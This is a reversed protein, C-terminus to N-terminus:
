FDTRRKSLVKVKKPTKEPKRTSLTPQPPSTETYLTTPEFSLPQSPSVLPVPLGQISNRKRLKRSQSILVDQVRPSQGNTYSGLATPVMQPSPLQLQPQWSHSDSHRPAQSHPQHRPAAPQSSQLPTPMVLRKPLYNPPPPNRSNGSHASRSSSTVSQHPNKADQDQPQSQQPVGHRQIQDQVSGTRQPLEFAPPASSSAPFGRNDVFLPLQDLEIQPTYPAQGSVHSRRRHVAINEGPHGALEQGGHYPRPSRRHAEDPRGNQMQLAQMRPPLRPNNSNHRGRHDPPPPNPNLPPGIHQQYEIVSHRRPRRADDQTGQSDYGLHKGGFSESYSPTVQVPVSRRDRKTASGDTAILSYEPPANQHSSHQGGDLHMPKSDHAAPPPQMEMSRRHDYYPQHTNQQTVLHPQSRPPWDPADSLGPASIVNQSLNYYFNHPLIQGPSLNLSVGIPVIPVGTVEPPNRRRPQKNRDKKSKPVPPSTALQYQSGINHPGREKSEQNVAKQVAEYPGRHHLPLGLPNSEDLEDIRDLEHARITLGGIIRRSSTPPPKSDAATTVSRPPLVPRKASKITEPTTVNRAPAPRNTQVMNRSSSPESLVNRALDVSELVTEPPTKRWFMTINKKKKQTEPPWPLSQAVKDSPLPAWPSSHSDTSTPPSSFSTSTTHNSSSNTEHTTSSHDDSFMSTNPPLLLQFDNATSLPQPCTDGKLGPQAHFPPAWTTAFFPHSHPDPSFAPDDYLSSTFAKPVSPSLFHSLVNRSSRGPKASQSPTVPISTDSWTRKHNYM